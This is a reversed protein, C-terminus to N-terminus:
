EAMNLQYKGTVEQVTEKNWIKFSVFYKDFLGSGVATTVSLRILKSDEASVYGYGDFLDKNDLLTMGTETVVKQSAGLSLSDDESKWGNRIVIHLTIKQGYSVQNGEPVLSGDEFTLYAQDVVLAKTNLTVGNRIKRYPKKAPEENTSFNCGLAILVWLVVFLKM